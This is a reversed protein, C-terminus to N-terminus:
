HETIPPESSLRMAVSHEHYNWHTAELIANEWFHDGFMKQFLGIMSRLSATMRNDQQKFAIVFAHIFKIEDKLVNVLGEITKEEEVLDNGFGPTDIVTFIPNSHNGLWHGQDECTKKTVSAGENNLGLVKFCGHEFGMGKYNKDRGMLINALSSKGVGTAGLIVIRPSAFRKENTVVIQQRPHKNYSSQHQTYGSNISQGQITSSEAIDAVNGLIVLFTTYQWLKSLQLFAVGIIPRKSRRKSYM